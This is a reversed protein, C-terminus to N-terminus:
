SRFQHRPARYEYSPLECQDKARDEQEFDDILIAHPLQDVSDILLADPV